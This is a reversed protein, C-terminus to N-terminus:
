ISLNILAYFVTFIISRITIFSVLCAIVTAGLRWWFSNRSLTFLPFIILILNFIWIIVVILRVNEVYKEREEADSIVMLQCNDVVLM